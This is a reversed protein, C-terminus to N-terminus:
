EVKVLAAVYIDLQKFETGREHYWICQAKSYKEMSENYIKEVTMIPGEFGILQVKDGPKIEEDAM